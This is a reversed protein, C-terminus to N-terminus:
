CACCSGSCCCVCCCTCCCSCCCSCGGCWSDDDRLVDGVASMYRFVCVILTLPPMLVMLVVVLVVVLVALVALVALLLALLGYTSSFKAESVRLRAAQEVLSPMGRGAAGSLGFLRCCLAMQALDQASLGGKAEELSLIAFFSCCIAGAMLLLPTLPLLVLLLVLLVLLVLLLVVLVLVLVLVVLVVLLPPPLAYRDEDLLAFQGASEWAHPRPKPQPPSAPTLVLLVILLM